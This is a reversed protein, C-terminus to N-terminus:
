FLVLRIRCIICFCIDCCAVSSYVKLDTAIRCIAGRVAVPLTWVGGVGSIFGAAFSKAAETRILAEVREEVSEYSCKLVGRPAKTRARQDSVM